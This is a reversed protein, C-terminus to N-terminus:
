KLITVQYKDGRINIKVKVSDNGTVIQNGTGVIVVEDDAVTAVYNGNETEVLQAPIKWGTFTRNGGGMTTPRLYYGQAMSALNVLEGTVNNRKAEVANVSFLTIGTYVAIGVIIIGLVILLLQQQGM